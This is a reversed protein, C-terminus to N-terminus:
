GPGDMEDESSDDDDSECVKYGGQEAEPPRSDGQKADYTEGIKGDAYTFEKHHMFDTTERFDEAYLGARSTLSTRLGGAANM